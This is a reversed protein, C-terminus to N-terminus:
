LPFMYGMVGERVFNLNQEAYILEAESMTYLHDRSEANWARYLPLGGCAADPYVYGVVAEDMYGFRDITVNKEEADM